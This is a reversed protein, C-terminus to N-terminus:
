VKIVECNASVEIVHKDKPKHHSTKAILLGEQTVHYLHTHNLTPSLIFCIM